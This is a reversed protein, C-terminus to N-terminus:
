KITLLQTINGFSFLVKEWHVLITVFFYVYCVNVQVEYQKRARGVNIAMWMNVFVSGVGTLVVYGYDEPLSEVFKSMGAM